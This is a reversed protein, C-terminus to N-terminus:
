APGIVKEIMEAMEIAFLRMDRATKARDGGHAEIKLGTALSKLDGEFKLEEQGFPRGIAKVVAQAQDLTDLAHELFLELIFPQPLPVSALGVAIRRCLDGIRNLVWSSLQIPFLPPSSLRLALLCSTKSMLM